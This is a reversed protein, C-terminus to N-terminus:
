APNKPALSGSGLPAFILEGFDVIETLVNIKGFIKLMLFIFILYNYNRSYFFGKMWDTRFASFFK